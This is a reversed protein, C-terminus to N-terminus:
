GDAAEPMGVSPSGLLIESPIEFSSSIRVVAREKMAGIEDPDVRVVPATIVSVDRSVPASIAWGASALEDALSQDWISEDETAPIDVHDVAGLEPAADVEADTPVIWGRVTGLDDDQDEVNLVLQFTTAM